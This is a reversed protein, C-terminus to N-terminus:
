PCCRPGGGCYYGGTHNVPGHKTCGVCREVRRYEGTFECEEALGDDVCEGCAHAYRSEMFMWGNPKACCECLHSQPSQSM